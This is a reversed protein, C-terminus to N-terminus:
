ILHKNFWVLMDTRAEDAIKLASEDDAKYRVAWGHAVGPFIKVFYDVQMPHCPWLNDYYVCFAALGLIM